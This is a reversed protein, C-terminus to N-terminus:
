GYWFHAARVPRARTHALDQKAYPYPAILPAFIAMLVLCYLWLLVSSPRHIKPCDGPLSIFNAKSRLKPLKPKWQPQLM